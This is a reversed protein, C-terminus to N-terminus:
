SLTRYGEGVVLRGEGSAYERVATVAFIHADDSGCDQFWFELEIESESRLLHIRELKSSLEGREAKRVVEQWVQDRSTEPWNQLPIRAAVWREMHGQMWPTM